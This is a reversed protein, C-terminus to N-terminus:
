GVDQVNGGRLKLIWFDGGVEEWSCTWRLCGDVALVNDYVLGACGLHRVGVGEDGGPAGTAGTRTELEDNLAVNMLLSKTVELLAGGGGGGQGGEM